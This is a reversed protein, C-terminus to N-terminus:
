RLAIYYYVIANLNTCSYSNNYVAFGTETIEAALNGGSGTIISHEPLILGGYPQNIQGIYGTGGNQTCILVARPQFGLTVAQSNRANGTYTGTVVANELAEARATWGSVSAAIATDLKTFNENIENLLFNDGPVWSHLTYNPTKNTSM